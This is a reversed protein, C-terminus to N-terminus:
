CGKGRRKELFSKELTIPFGTTFGPFFLNEGKGVGGGGRKKEKEGGGDELFDKNTLINKRALFM